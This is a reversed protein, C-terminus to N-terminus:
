SLFNVEGEGSAYGYKKDRRRFVSLRLFRSPTARLISLNTPRAVWLYRRVVIRYEWLLGERERGATYLPSGSPKWLALPFGKPADSVCGEAWVWLHALGSAAQGPQPCLLRKVSAGADKPRRNASLCHQLLRDYLHVFGGTHSLLGCVAFRKITHLSM